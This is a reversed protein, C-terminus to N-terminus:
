QCATAKSREISIDLIIEEMEVLKKLFMNLKQNLAEIKKELQDIKRDKADLPQHLIEDPPADEFLTEEITDPADLILVKSCHTTQYIDRIMAKIDRPNTKTTIQNENVARILKPVIYRKMIAVGLRTFFYVGEMFGPQGSENDQKRIIISNQNLAILGNNWCFGEAFKMMGHTIQTDDITQFLEDNCNGTIKKDTSEGFIIRYKDQEYMFPGKAGPVDTVPGKHQDIPVPVFIAQRCIDGPHIQELMHQKFSKGVLCKKSNIIKNYITLLRNSKQSDQVRTEQDGTDPVGAALVGAASVETDPVGAASVETDPVKVPDQGHNDQPKPGPDTIISPSTRDRNCPLPRTALGTIAFLDDQEARRTLENNMLTEIEDGQKTIVQCGSTNQQDTPKNNQKEEGQFWRFINVQNM